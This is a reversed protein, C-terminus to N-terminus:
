PKRPTPRQWGPLSTQRSRSVTLQGAPAAKAIVSGAGITADAGIEVPAVLASNSGIFARDGIRTLHKNVGDYNCTITGAGVNVDAGLEADGVYSLHNIKSGAGVIAKKTEVFNGVKAGTALRTGPRLRAFPGVHVNAATVVGELVSHSEVVAGDGLEVDRLHCYPGIRVKNGLVVRGELICGVDISVDQGAQVGGRVDLRAPDALTVGAQMLATARRSQLQREARALQVRDNVGELEAADAACLASVARGDAVAMAIVDTLYYEGKPNDNKLAELWPGLWDGPAAIVGTNIEKIAQQAPTADAQEVIASVQGSADRVIRGYGGPEAVKATIIVVQSRAAEAASALTAPTILPVDGYAVLIVSGPTWAQASLRVAHGTGLQETQEVWTVPGTMDGQLAAWARVAAQGHGVVLHVQQPMLAVVARLVHALMPEGGLPQLVKPHASRMRTGKGAALVVVDLPAVSIAQNM